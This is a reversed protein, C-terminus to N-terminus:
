KKLGLAYFGGVVVLIAIVAVVATNPAPQTTPASSEACVDGSCTWGVPCGCDKCCNEQSEGQQCVNDGCTAPPPQVPKDTTIPETGGTGPGPTGTPIPLGDDTTPTPLDTTGTGEAAGTGEDAGTGEPPVESPTEPPPPPTGLTTTEVQFGQVWEPGANGSQRGEGEGAFDWAWCHIEYRGENWGNLAMAKGITMKVKAGDPPTAAQRECINPEFVGPACMSDNQANASDMGIFRCNMQWASGSEIVILNATVDELQNMNWSPNPTFVGGELSLMPAQVDLNVTEGGAGVVATGVTVQKHKCAACEASWDPCTTKNVCVTLYPQGQPFYNLPQEFTASDTGVPIPVTQHPDSRLNVQGFGSIFLHAQTDADAAIGTVMVKIMPADVTGHEDVFGAESSMCIAPDVSGGPTTEAPRWKCTADATCAGESTHKDCPDEVFTTESIKMAPIPDPDNTVIGSIAIGEINGDATPARPAGM